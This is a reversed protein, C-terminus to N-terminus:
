PRREAPGGFRPYRLKPAHRSPFVAALELAEVLEIGRATDNEPGAPILTSEARFGAARIVRNATEVSPQTRRHEYASLTAHSTQAREGLERLTLGSRHRAALLARDAHM